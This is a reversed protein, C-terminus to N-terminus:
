LSNWVMKNALNTSRLELLLVCFTNDVLEAMTSLQMRIQSCVIFILVDLQLWTIINTGRIRM